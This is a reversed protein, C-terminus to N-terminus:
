AGTVTPEPRTTALLKPDEARAQVVHSVQSVKPLHGEIIYFSAVKQSKEKLFTQKILSDKYRQLLLVRKCGM